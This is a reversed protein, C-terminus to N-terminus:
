GDLRGESRGKQDMVALTGGGGRGRGGRGAARVRRHGARRVDVKVERALFGGLYHYLYM